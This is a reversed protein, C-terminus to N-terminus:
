DQECFFTCAVSDLWGSANWANGFGWVSIRPVGLVVKKPRDGGLQGALVEACGPGLKGAWPQRVKTSSIPILPGAEWLSAIPLVTQPVTRYAPPEM